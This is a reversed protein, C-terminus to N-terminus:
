KYKTRLEKAEDRYQQQESQSLNHWKEAIESIKGNNGSKQRFLVLPNPPSKPKKLKICDAIQQRKEERQYKAEQM